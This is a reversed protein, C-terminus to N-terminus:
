YRAIIQVAPTKYPQLLIDISEQIQVTDSVILITVKLRNGRYTTVTETDYLNGLHEKMQESTLQELSRQEIIFEALQQEFLLKLLHNPANMPNFKSMSYHTTVQQIVESNDGNETFLWDIENPLQIPQNPYKVGMITAEPESDGVLWSDTDKDQWGKLLGQKQKIKEDDWGMNNLLKNWFPTNPYRQSLLGQIDQISVVVNSDIISDLVFPKGYFNWSPGNKQEVDQDDTTFTTQTLLKYIIQSQVSKLQQAAKIRQEFATAMEIQDRATHTFSIALISIISSILLVQILAVGNQKKMKQHTKLAIM